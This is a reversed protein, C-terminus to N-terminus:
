YQKSERINDFLRCIKDALQYALLPPVANGVQQYQSTRPGMFFYNDPFTQLRAVERVTLSRCQAPDPHIYYHGDKSIHSTITTSPRGLLQVRFRDAFQKGNVGEIVNKHNPLLDKPFASLKPSSHNVSAFCACYFYRHLDSSIHSRSHHNCVGKIQPDQLWDELAMPVPSHDMTISEDGRNLNDPLLNIQNIIKERVEKTISPDSLVGNSQIQRITYLWNQNSDTGKSIGSRIKPLDSIVMELTIDNQSRELVEPWLNIDDRIGLVIVRHRAQPIGYWECRIVYDEPHFELNGFIDYTRSERVFSFLRYGRKVRKSRIGDIAQSPNKLDGFIKDAIKGTSVTSSLLGKVNELVFVPPQHIAL